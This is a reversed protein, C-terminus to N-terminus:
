RSAVIRDLESFVKDAVASWRHCKARGAGILACAAAM